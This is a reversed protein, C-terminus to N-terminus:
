KDLWVEGLFPNNQMDVTWNKVYSGMAWPVPGEAVPITFCEDLALEQIRRAIPLRKERELTTALDKRLQDYEASEFHTWGKEKETYWSKAATLTTVPDLNARGYVHSLLAIDGKQTRADYQAVEVDSVTAKIGIKALDAQLMVALEGYGFSRKSATLIETEFGKELGAEKLLAKAKELDYGIKGQLDKQYAWSSPPWILCTPDTLGQIVTKAFRARDISWAIAQRVKKNTFPELKTNIGVDFVNEGGPGMNVVYKGGSDRLRVADLYSTRFAADISGAELNVTLASADPILRTVYKDAYPKGKDWYDKFASAEVRDNPIYRDVKFPGTGIGTNAFDKTTEKDVAHTCDILDFVGANPTDLKMVFTYKDPTEMGKITQYIPRQLSLESSAAYEMSFKMDESTFPRGTHYKVDERLKFTITKGDPSIDWKTALEPQLTLTQDYHALSNYFTRRVRYWNRQYPDFTYFTDTQATTLTGGKKPTGAAAKTAAAPAQTAAATAQAGSGPAATAKPASTAAPAAPQSCATLLGLGAAAVGLRLFDRRRLARATMDDRM